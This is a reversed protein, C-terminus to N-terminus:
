SQTSAKSTRRKKRRKITNKKTRSRQSLSRSIAAMELDKNSGRQYM